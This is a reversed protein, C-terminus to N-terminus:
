LRCVTILTVRTSLSNATFRIPGLTICRTMGCRNGTNIWWGTVDYQVLIQYDNDTRQVQPTTGCSITLYDGKGTEFSPGFCMADTGSVGYRRYYTNGENTVKAAYDKWVHTLHVTRILKGKVADVGLEGLNDVDIIALYLAKTGTPNLSAYVKGDKENYCIDGLHGEIGTISGVANGELDCKVFTNTYSYYVYGKEADIAMGQCHKIDWSGGSALSLPFYDIITFNEVELTTQPITTTETTTPKSTTVPKKTTTKKQTTTVKTTSAATITPVTSVFPAFVDGSGVFTLSIYGFSLLATICILVLAINQLIRKM